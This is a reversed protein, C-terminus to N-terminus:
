RDIKRELTTPSNAQRETAKQAAALAQFKAKEFEADTLKGERHMQRLDSLTFGVGVSADKPALWRKLWTVAVFLLILGIILVLTWFFVAPLGSAQALITDAPATAM